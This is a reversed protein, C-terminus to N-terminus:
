APFLLSKISSAWPVPIIREVSESLLLIVILESKEGTSEPHVFSPVITLNVVEVSLTPIPVVLGPAFSSIAPLRRREPAPLYM